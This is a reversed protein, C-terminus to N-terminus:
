ELGIQDLLRRIRPDRTVDDLTPYRPARLFDPERLAYAEELLAVARDTDGLAAHVIAPVILPVFRTEARTEIHQLITRADETRGMRAYTVALGFLPEGPVLAQSRRYERLANDYQGLERYAAAVWNEFYFFTSDIDATNPHLAVLEDFHRGYYLCAERGWALPQSLPDLMTARRAAAQGEDDRSTGCLFMGYLFFTNAANSDLAIAREFEAQAGRLDFDMVYRAYGLIAHAEPVLSDIALAKEAAAKGDSFAEKPPVYTDALAGYAFAMQTYALAYDPDRAIAQEYYAIAKRLDAESSRTVYFNGRLYLDHAVPDATRGARAVAEALGGLHLQLAGVISQTIEDQIQFADGDEREFTDSWIQLGDTADILRASIRIRGGARRVTGELVTTVNLRKAVERADVNRDKFTFASSRAAVRLGPVKGLASTLEDAMGDAFYEDDPDGSGNVFPLVAISRTDAAPAGTTPAGDHRRQWLVATFAALVVFVVPVGWRTARRRVASPPPVPTLAGSPTAALADLVPLLEDAHQWRDAPNKALCRMVLDALAPPLHERYRTVPDPVVSVHAALTAQYTEKAFPPRGTLMEYAVAGVAYLDARHDIHPDGAAQEPSMYAPTGIAVGATTLGSGGKAESVGKAVGFDTVFAHRDAIMVNEPKIDRHVVGEAHSKALADVVDRLLRITEPVPLQGERDLRQRLSEGQIYPMVYFLFERENGPEGGARGSDYVPVINPHVLGAALEIERLFREPGLSAALDPRLVKLAVKRNHREDHALYVTAMGGHGVEREIRYRGALTTSLRELTDTM